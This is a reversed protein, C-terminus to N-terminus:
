QGSGAKRGTRPFTKALQGLLLIGALMAMDTILIVDHRM